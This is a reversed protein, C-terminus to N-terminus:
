LLPFGFGRGFVRAFLQRMGISLAAVNCKRVKTQHGWDSLHVNVPPYRYVM